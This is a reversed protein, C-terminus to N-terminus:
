KGAACVADEQSAIAMRYGDFAIGSYDKFKLHTPLEWVGLLNYRRGALGLGCLTCYLSAIHSM